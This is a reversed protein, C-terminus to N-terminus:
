KLLLRSGGNAWVQSSKDPGIGSFSYDGSSNTTATTIAATSNNVLKITWGALGPEGGDLAGNGNLDNYVEGSVTVTQFDGFDLNAVNQGSTTTVSYTTSAPATQVYGSQLVEEITYSGPNTISLAYDGSADTTTTAVIASPVTSCTSPGAPSGPSM